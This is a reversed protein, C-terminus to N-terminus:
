PVSGFAEGGRLERECDGYLTFRHRTGVVEFRWAPGGRALFYEIRAPQDTPIGRKKAEAWVEKPGCRPEPLPDGLIASCPYNPEDKKVALGGSALRVDQKGCYARSRLTGAPAEPQPGHGRKSQFAYRVYNDPLTLDVTGDSSVKFASIGRLQDRPTVERAAALTAILDVAKPYGAVGETTPPAPEAAPEPASENKAWWSLCLAGLFAVAIIALGTKKDRRRAESDM